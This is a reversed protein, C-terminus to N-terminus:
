KAIKIDRTARRLTEGVIKAIRCEKGQGIIKFDM